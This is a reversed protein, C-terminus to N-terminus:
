FNKILSLYGFSLISAVVASFAFLYSLKGYMFDKVKQPLKQMLQMCIKHSIFGAILAFSAYEPKLLDLKMSNYVVIYVFAASLTMGVGLLGFLMLACFIAAVIFIWSYDFSEWQRWTLVSVIFILSIVMETSRLGRVQEWHIFSWSAARRLLIDGGWFILSLFIAVSCLAPALYPHSILPLQEPIRVCLFIMLIVSLVVHLSSPLNRELNKSWWHFTPTDLEPCLGQEVATSFYRTLKRITINYYGIFRLVHFYNPQCKDTLLKIPTKGSPAGSKEAVIIHKIYASYTNIRLDLYEIRNRKDLDSHQSRFWQFEEAVAEVLSYPFDEDEDCQVLADLCLLEFHARTKISLLTSSHVEEYFRHIVADIDADQFVREVASLADDYAGQERQLQNSARGEESIPVQTYSDDCAEQQGLSADSLENVPEVASVLQISVPELEESPGAEGVPSEGDTSMARTRKCHAMAFDFAERLRQYGEPDDDPRTQKLLTSYARKVSKRDETQALGLIQWYDM